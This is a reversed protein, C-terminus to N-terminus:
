SILVTDQLFNDIDKKLRIFFPSWSPTLAKIWNITLIGNFRKFHPTKEKSKVVKNLHLRCVM